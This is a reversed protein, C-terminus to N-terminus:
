PEYSPGALKWTACLAFSQLLRHDIFLRYLNMPDDIDVTVVPLVGRM